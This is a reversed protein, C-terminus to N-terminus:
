SIEKLDLYYAIPGPDKDYEPARTFGLEEYLRRAATMFPGTYLYIAAIHAERARRLCEQVLLRGYGRGRSEPRVALIRMSAADPPWAGLRAQGADPYFKVAGHLRGDPEAAVLMVGSRSHIIKGINDMWAAWSKEPFLTQGMKSLLFFITNHYCCTLYPLFTKPV